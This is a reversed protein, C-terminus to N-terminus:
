GHSGVREAQAEQVGQLLRRSEDDTLERDWELLAEAAGPIGLAAATAIQWQQNLLEATSRSM